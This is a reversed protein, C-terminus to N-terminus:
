VRTPRRESRQGRERAAQCALCFRTVPYADLRARPIASGCGECVGYRGAGMRALAEEIEALARWGREDLDTLVAFGGEHQANEALEMPRPGGLDSMQGEMGEIRRRLREREALLRQRLQEM